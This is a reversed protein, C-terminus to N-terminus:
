KPLHHKPIQAYIEKCYFLVDLTGANVNRPLGVFHGRADLGRDQFCDKVLELPYFSGFRNVFIAFM